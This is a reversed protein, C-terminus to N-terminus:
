TQKNRWYAKAFEYNEIANFRVQNYFFMKKVENMFGYVFSSVVDFVYITAYEHVVTKAKIIGKEIHERLPIHFDTTIQQSRNKIRTLSKSLFWLRGKIPRLKIEFYDVFGIRSASLKAKILRFNTITPDFKLRVEGTQDKKFVSTIGPVDALVNKVDARSVTTKFKVLAVDKSVYKSLYGAINRCKYVAKIETSPPNKDAGYKARYNDLYGFNNQIKNWIYRVAQHPIFSNIVIHFHINGNEQSEARWLYSAVMYKLKIENLFWNLMRQKIFQDSHQQRDSLTLTIFSLKHKIVMENSSTHVRESTLGAFWSLAQNIRKSAKVSIIGSHDNNELNKKNENFRASNYNRGDAPEGYVCVYNPNVSCMPVMITKYSEDKKKM